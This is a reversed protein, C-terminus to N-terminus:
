LWDFWGFLRSLFPYFTCFFLSSAGTMSWFGHRRSATNGSTYPNNYGNCRNGRCPCVLVFHDFLRPMKSNASTEKVETTLLLKAPMPICKNQNAYFAIKRTTNPDLDWIVLRTSCGRIYNYGVIVGSSHLNRALKRWNLAKGGVIKREALTICPGQCQKTGIPPKAINPHSCLDTFNSPLYYLLTLDAWSNAYVKSMCSFCESIM